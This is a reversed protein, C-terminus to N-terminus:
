DVEMDDKSVEPAEEEDKKASDDEEKADEKPSGEEKKEERPKPEKLIDDAMRALDQSKREMDACLLVPKEHKTLGAQKEKSENLWKELEGCAASISALKDAAIHGFKDGPNEAAARYNVVTGQVAQIWENRMADEKSRWAVADGVKRLDDMKDIYMTKTADMNDYLWDEAKTLDSSFKERDASSIYAAYEGSESCKNRM